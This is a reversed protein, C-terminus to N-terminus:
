RGTTNKVLQQTITSGGPNEGVPIFYKLTAKITTIWDVGDHEWFRKDEIAVFANILHDPMDEYAIWMQNTGGALRQSEDEVLNGNRDYYYMRTTSDKQSSVMIYDSMDADVHNSVYILFASGVVCGAILGVLLITFLVNLVGLISRFIIRFIFHTVEKTETQLKKAKTISDKPKM